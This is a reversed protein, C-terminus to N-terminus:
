FGVIFLVVARGRSQRQGWENPANPIVTRASANEPCSFDRTEM